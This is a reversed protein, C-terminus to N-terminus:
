KPDGRGDHRGRRLAWVGARACPLLRHETFVAGLADGRSPCHHVLSVAELLAIQLPGRRDTAHPLSLHLINVHISLGAVHIVVCRRCRNWGPAEPIHLLPRCHSRANSHRICPRRKLIRRGNTSTSRYTETSVGTELQDFAFTQREPYANSTIDFDSFLRCDSWHSSLNSTIRSSSSKSQRIYYALM